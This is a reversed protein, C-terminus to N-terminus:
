RTEELARRAITENEKALEQLRGISAGAGGPDTLARDIMQQLLPANLADLQVYNSQGMYDLFGNVKPDYVIGVLPVGQGAAFVLAHLRMSVVVEMRQMLALIAGSDEPARILVKPCTIQQSIQNVARQDTDPELAFLVPIMGHQRYVYEAAAAFDAVHESFRQWPRPVFMVYRQGEQLGNSLLVSKATQQDCATLLLAPDATLRIDPRDVGMRKLEDLSNQDRLTVTDVCHNIMKAARRRSWNGNVPGIGCGYMMVHNGTRHAWRINSLYYMLSRDSTVNQILTGGGSIYLQTHRMIRVFKFINFIHCAGIRYRMKTERPRRSLAYVPIDEDIDKMQAVIARLIADDGANRRGYAGCILVGDRKRARRAFRRCIQTYIEVQRAVTAEVSFQRRTKEFLAQAMQQRLTADQALQVMCQALAQVDQPPFLFGNIQDDILAPIGGVRSAITACHMRAGETLAYPFTESLSTLVNVDIAHYFSDTDSVWGAFCVAGQPCLERALARIEQAQEGDGAIVLRASPCVKVTEAFARVLTGMDKVPSIRAAIGFVVSDAQRQLGISDFYEERTMAAELSSFDVGNYIAYMRQPDFGRHILLQAMADSVGIYDDLFRLAITNITGFTLRHLPRGLYDLRYDSHVTTVVPIELKRRMLAGMMNARSGHCHVVDFGEERIRAALQAADRLVNRSKVIETPIGLRRADQAFEGEMFCVLQVTQTQMLGHLLSLVHTKAGGVDGGSIFHIIKM